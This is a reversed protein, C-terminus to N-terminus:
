VGDTSAAVTTTFGANKGTTILSHVVSRVKYVPLILNSKNTIQTGSRSTDKVVKNNLPNSSLSDAPDDKNSVHPAPSSSYTDSNNEYSVERQAVSSFTGAETRVGVDHLISNYIRLAESPYWTPDGILTIQVGNVDRGWNKSAAIATLLAGGSPNSYTSLNGDYIIKTRCPVKVFRECGPDGDFLWPVADISVTVDSLVNANTGSTESSDVVVFRNFTAISSTFSRISLILQNACPPPIDNGNSDKKPWSRFFYTRFARDPDRFGSSDLLRPGLIFDGNIHSAFFDMPREELNAIWRLIVMPSKDLVQWQSTGANKALPPRQLWMHFRPRSFKDMFKHTARRLWRTPDITDGELKDKIPSPKRNTNNDDFASYFEVKDADSDNPCIIKKWCLQQDESSIAQSYGLTARAVDRVIMWPAGNANAEPSSKGDGNLVGGLSPISIIQTDAFIRTRDRCSLIYNIGTGRSSGDFDIKDIFGWFVPALPKNPDPVHIGDGVDIVIEDLLDATIPTFPSDVYGMYIRIEDECTLFPYNGGRIKSVDPLSPIESDFSPLNAVLTILAHSTGWDRLLSVSVHKIAWGLSTCQTKELETAILKKDISSTSDTKDVKNTNDSKNTDKSQPQSNPNNKNISYFGEVDYRSVFLIHQQANSPTALTVVAIPISSEPKYTKAM